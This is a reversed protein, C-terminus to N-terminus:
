NSQEVIAEVIAEARDLSGDCQLLWRTHLDESIYM